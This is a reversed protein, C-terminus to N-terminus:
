QATAGFGAPLFTYKQMWRYYLQYPTLYKTVLFFKKEMEIKDIVEGTDEDKQEVVEIRTLTEIDVKINAKQIVGNEDAEEVINGEEDLKPEIIQYAMASRIKEDRGLSKSLTSIVKELSEVDECAQIQTWANASTTALYTILEKDILEISYQDKDAGEARAEEEETVLLDDLGFGLLPDVLSERNQQKAYEWIEVNQGEPVYALFENGTKATDMYYKNGQTMTVSGDANRTYNEGEIGYQFLNRFEVNTNLLTIIEMSKDFNKTFSSVAFMNDYIDEDAAKPYDVVVVYNDDEYETALAADGTVFSVASKQGETPTGFYNKFKFNMLNTLATTYNEDLLLNDFTIASSGRSPVEDAKYTHGLVSFTDTSIELTEPDITWYDAILSL